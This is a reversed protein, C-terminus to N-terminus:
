RAEERPSPGLDRLFIEHTDHGRHIALVRRDGIRDVLIRSGQVSVVDPLLSRSVEGKAPDLTAYDRTGGGRVLHLLGTVPDLAAMGGDVDLAFPLRAFEVWVGDGGLRWARDGSVVVPRDEVAFIAAGREGVPTAAEPLPPGPRWTRNIPDYVGYTRTGGGFVSHVRGAIVCLGAGLGAPHTADPLKESKMERLDVRWFSNGGGSMGYVWTEDDYAACVGDAFMAGVGVGPYPSWKNRGADLLRINKLRGFYWGDPGRGMVGLVPKPASRRVLSSGSNEHLTVWDSGLDSAPSATTIEELEDLAVRLMRNGQAAAYVFLHKKGDVPFIFARSGEGSIKLPLRPRLFAFRRRNPDFLSLTRSGMGQIIIWIDTELDKAFMQGDWWPRQGYSMHVHNLWTATEIDYRQIHHDPWAYVKGESYMLAGTSQGIAALRTEGGVRTLKTWSSAAVDFRWFDRTWGGRIAYVQNRDHDFALAAAVGVVNPFAPLVELKEKALDYRWFDRQKGGRAIYLRQDRDFALAVGSGVIGPLRAAHDHWRNTAPEYESIRDSHVLLVRRGSSAMAAPLEPAGEPRGPLVKWRPSADPELDQHVVETPKAIEVEEQPGCAPTTVLLASVALATLM